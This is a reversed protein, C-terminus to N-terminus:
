NCGFASCQVINSCHDNNFETLNTSYLKTCVSQAQPYLQAAFILFIIGIVGIFISIAKEDSWFHVVGWVALGFVVLPIGVLPVTGFNAFISQAFNQAIGDM